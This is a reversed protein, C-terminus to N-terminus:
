PGRAPRSRGVRVRCRRVDARGSRGHHAAPRLIRRRHRADVGPPMGSIAFDGMYNLWCGPPDAYMPQSADNFGVDNISEVGGNVFGPGFAIEGFMSTAQRVVPHDFPIEHAVWQDYLEVGGLRLVLAEIWDTAPWGSAAGSEIGLCWPHRGDAVMQRSLAILEDWTRPVTYGAEEFEPVPYWM